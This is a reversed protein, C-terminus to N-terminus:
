NCHLLFHQEELENKLQEFKFSFNFTDKDPQLKTITVKQTLFMVTAQKGIMPCIHSANNYCLSFFIITEDLLLASFYQLGNKGASKLM